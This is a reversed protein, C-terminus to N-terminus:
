PMDAEAGTEHEPSSEAAAVVAEPAGGSLGGSPGDKLEFVSPAQTSAGRGNSPGAVPSLGGLFADLDAEDSGGPSKVTVSAASASATAPVTLPAPVAVSPTAVVANAAAAAGRAAATASLLGAQSLAAAAVPMGMALRKQQQEQAAGVVGASATARMLSAEAELDDLQAHVHNLFAAKQPKKLAAGAGLEAIAVYQARTYLADRDNTRMWDLFDREAFYFASVYDTVRLWGPLPKVKTVRELGKKLVTIDLSMAARGESTCKTVGAYADTLTLVLEDLLSSHMAARFAPPFLAPSRDMADEVQTFLQVVTDVYGSHTQPATKTDWKGAAVAARLGSRALLVPAIGAYILQALEGAAADTVACALALEDQLAPPLLPHLRPRVTQLVYSAFACTRVAVVREVFGYLTGADSLDVLALEALQPPAGASAHHGALSPGLSPQGISGGGGGNAASSSSDHSPRPTDSYATSSSASAPAPTHPATTGSASAPPKDAPGPTAAATTTAGSTLKSKLFSFKSKVANAASTAALSAASPKGPTSPATDAGGSGGATSSGFGSASPAPAALANSSPTRTLVKAFSFSSSSALGNGSGSGSASAPAPSAASVTVAPHPGMAGNNGNGNNGNSGNVSNNGGAGLSGARGSAAFAAVAAAVAGSTAKLKAAQDLRARVQQLVASLVPYRHVPFASWPDPSPLPSGVTPPKMQIQFLSRIDMDSAFATAVAYIYYAAHEALAAVSTAACPPLDRVMAVLRGITRASALAAATGVASAPLAAPIAPVRATAAASEAATLRSLAVTARKANPPPHFADSDAPDIRSYPNFIARPAAALFVSVVSSSSSSSSSSAQASAPNGSATASSATAEDTFPNQNHVFLAWARAAVGGDDDDADAGGAEAAAAATAAASCSSASSALAARRALLRLARAAQSAQGKAEAETPRLAGVDEQPAFGARLPLPHWSDTQFATKLYEVSGARYDHAFAEARELVAAALERACTRDGTAREALTIIEYANVLVATFDEFRMATPQFQNRTFFLRIQPEVAAWASSLASAFQEATARLTRAVGLCGDETGAADASCLTDLAEIDAPELRAQTLSQAQAQSQVPVAPAAPTAAKTPAKGGKAPSSSAAAAATAAAADEAAAIVEYREAMADFMTSTRQYFVFIGTVTGLAAAFCRRLSYHPVKAVLTATDLEVLKHRALVEAPLFSYVAERFGDHSVAEAARETEGSLAAVRGQAIIGRTVAVFRLPDFASGMAALEDSMADSLLAPLRGLRAIPEQLCNLQSLAARADPNLVDVKLQRLQMVAAPFERHRVLTEIDGEQTGIQAIKRVINQMALARARARQTAITRLVQETVAAKATRLYARAGAAEAAAQSLRRHMSCVHRLGDIFESYNAIVMHSLHSGVAAVKSELDNLQEELPAGPVAMPTGARPSVPPSSAFPNGSNASTSGGDAAEAAAYLSTSATELAYRVADFDPTFFREDLSSVIEEETQRV